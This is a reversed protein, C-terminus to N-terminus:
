LLKSIVSYLREFSVGATTWTLLSEAIFQPLFAATGGLTEESGATEEGDTDTRRGAGGAINAGAAFGEEPEPCIPRVIEAIQDRLQGHRKSFIVSFAKEADADSFLDSHSESFSILMEYILRLHEKPTKARKLKLRGLSALWDEAMFSAVLMEKSPFYNYVTGVAIGCEGAVSRVTTAAYGREKIQKRAENLLQERVNELIKPM